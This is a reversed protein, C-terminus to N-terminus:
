RVPAPAEPAGPAPEEVLGARRKMADIDLNEFWEPLNKWFRHFGFGGETLERLAEDKTWGEVAVRYVASLVGTRDAGHMCHVLVPTRDPDTVLQLFRVVEKEEPHWAKMYIHEYGLGTEGIEGRDSHFSRLNIITKVGLEKLNRMGEATPQASRYLADSVKHLNPVGTMEIPEAWAAPRAASPATEAAPQEVAFGPLCVALLLMALMLFRYVRPMM